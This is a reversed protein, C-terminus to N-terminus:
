RSRIRYWKVQKTGRVKKFKLKLVNQKARKVAHKLAEREVRKNDRESERLAYRYVKKLTRKIRVTRLQRKRKATVRKM